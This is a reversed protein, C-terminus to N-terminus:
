DNAGCEQWGLFRSGNALNERVDSLPFIIDRNDMRNEGESAEVGVCSPCEEGQSPGTRECSEYTVCLVISLSTRLDKKHLSVLPHLIAKEEVDHIDQAGIELEARKM